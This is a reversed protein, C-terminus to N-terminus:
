RTELSSGQGTGSISLMPIHALGESDVLSQFSIFGKRRIVVTAVGMVSDEELSM